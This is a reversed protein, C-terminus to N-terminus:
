LRPAGRGALRGRVGDSVGSGAICEPRRICGSRGGAAILHAREITAASRCRPDRHVVHRFVHVPSAVVPEAGRISWANGDGDSLRPRDRTRGRITGDGARSGVEFSELRGTRILRSTAFRSGPAAPVCRTEPTLDVSGSGGRSAIRRESLETAPRSVALPLKPVRPDSPTQAVIM